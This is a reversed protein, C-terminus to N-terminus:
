LLFILGKARLGAGHGGCCAVRRRCTGCRPEGDGRDARSSSPASRAAKSWAYVLQFIFIFLGLLLVLATGIAATIFRDTLGAAELAADVVENEVWTWAAEFEAPSIVADLNENAYAFVQDVKAHDFTPVDLLAVLAGLERRSIGGSGDADLVACLAQVDDNAGAM